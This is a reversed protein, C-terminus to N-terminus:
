RKLHTSFIMILSMKLFKYFYLLELLFSLCLKNQFCDGYLYEDHYM